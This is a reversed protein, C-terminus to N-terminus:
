EVIGARIAPAVEPNTPTAKARGGAMRTPARAPWTKPRRAVRQGGEAEAQAAARAQHSAPEAPPATTPANTAVWDLRSRDVPAARPARNCDASCASKNGM